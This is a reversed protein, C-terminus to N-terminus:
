AASADGSDGYDIQVALFAGVLAGVAAGEAVRAVIFSLSGGEVLGGIGGILATGLIFFWELATFSGGRVGRVVTLAFVSGIV